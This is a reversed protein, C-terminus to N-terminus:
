ISASETVRHLPCPMAVRQQLRTRRDAATPAQLKPRRKRLRHCVVCSPYSLSSSFINWFKIQCMGVNAVFLNCERVAQICALSRTGVQLFSQLANLRADIDSIEDGSEGRQHQGRPYQNEEDDGRGREVRRGEGPNRHDVNRQKHGPSSETSAAGRNRSPDALPKRYAGAGYEARGSSPSAALGPSRSRDNASWPRERDREGARTQPSGATRAYFNDEGPRQREASAPRSSTRSSPQASPRM